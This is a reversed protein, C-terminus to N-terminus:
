SRVTGSSFRRVGRISEIQLATPRSRAAYYVNVEVDDDDQFRLAKAAPERFSAVVGALTGNIEAVIERAYQPDVYAVAHIVFFAPDHWPQLQEAEATQRDPLYEVNGSPSSM